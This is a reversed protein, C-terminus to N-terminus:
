DKNKQNLLPKFITKRLIIHKKMWYKAKKADRTKLAELIAGHEKIASAMMGPAFKFGEAIFQETYGRLNEFTQLLFRNHTAKMLYHHFELDHKAVHNSRAEKLADEMKGVVLSLNELEEPTINMVIFKMAGLEVAERADLLESVVDVGGLQPLRFFNQIRPPIANKVITGRGSRQDVVGILSLTNMAERLTNRSVNLQKALTSHDPLKDGPKLEGSVMMKRIEEIVADSLKMKTVAM